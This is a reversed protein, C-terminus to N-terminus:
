TINSINLLKSIRGSNFNVFDYEREDEATTRCYNYFSISSM